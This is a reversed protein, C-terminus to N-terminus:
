KGSKAFVEITCDVTYPTKLIKQGLYVYQNNSFIYTDTTYGSHYTM